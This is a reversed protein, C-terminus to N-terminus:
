FLHFPDLPSQNSAWEQMSNSADTLDTAAEEERNNHVWVEIGVGGSETTLKKANQFSRSITSAPQQSQTVWNCGGGQM